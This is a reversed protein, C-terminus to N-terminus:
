IETLRELERSLKDYQTSSIAGDAYALNIDAELKDIDVDNYYANNVRKYLHNFEAEGIYSDYM